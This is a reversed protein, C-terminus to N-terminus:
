FRKGHRYPRNQNFKMKAIIAEGLSVGTAEAFDVICIVADALEIAFNSFDPCNKDQEFTEKRAARFAESIEEHAIATKLPINVAQHALKREEKDSYDFKELEPWLGKLRANKHVLQQFFNAYNIITQKQGNNM